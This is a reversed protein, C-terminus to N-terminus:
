GTTTLWEAPPFWAICTLIHVGVGVIGQTRFRNVNLNEIGEVRQVAFSKPDDASRFGTITCDSDYLRASTSQLDRNPHQRRGASVNLDLVFWMQVLISKQVECRQKRTRKGGRVSIVIVELLYSNVSAISALSTCSCSRSRIISFRSTRTGTSALTVSSSM